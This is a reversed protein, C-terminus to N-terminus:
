EGLKPFPGVIAELQRRALATLKRREELDKERQELSENLRRMAEISEAPRVSHKTQESM